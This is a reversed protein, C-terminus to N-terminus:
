YNNRIKNAIIFGMFGILLIGATTQLSSWFDGVVDTFKEFPGISNNLSYALENSITTCKDDNFHFILSFLLIIGIFWLLVTKLRYGYGFAKNLWCGSLQLCDPWIEITRIFFRKGQSNTWKSIIKYKLYKGENVKAFRYASNSDKYLGKGAYLGSLQAYVESAEKYMSSKSELTDGKDEAKNATSFDDCPNLKHWNKYHIIINSYDEYCEQALQHISDIRLCNCEFVANTISCKTFSCGYFNTTGTFSTMYFDGYTIDARGLSCDAFSSYRFDCIHIKTEKFRCTIFECSFFDGETISTTVPCTEVDMTHKQQLKAQESKIVENKDFNCKILKSQAFCVNRLEAGRFNVNHIIKRDIKTVDYSNFIVNDIHLNSFDINSIDINSLDLNSIPINNKRSKDIIGKLTNLDHIVKINVNQDIFSAHKKM